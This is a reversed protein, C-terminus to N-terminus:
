KRQGLGPKAPAPAGAYTFNVTSVAGPKVTVTKTLFGYAEQWIQVTFTGAPVNDIQFTGSTGTVSFYPNDVIGIFATMWSHVDCKLRMMVEEKTAKFPYVVGAVPQGINFEANQASANHVNHLFNDSNKIQITQGVRAGIVRPRYICARQDIVVPSTPVPTKPFSGQVRVFVNALSGDIAAMVTEQIVQKGANIRACMPDRGLRLVVNGPLKGSLGVHGRITGTNNQPAAYLRSGTTVVFLFLFANCIQRRTM